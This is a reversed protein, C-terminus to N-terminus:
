TLLESKQFLDIKNLKKGVSSVSFFLGCLVCLFRQSRQTNETIETPPFIGASSVANKEATQPLISEVSIQYLM